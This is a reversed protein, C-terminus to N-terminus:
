LLYFQLCALNLGKERITAKPENTWVFASLGVHEEVSTRHLEAGHGLFSTADFELDPFIPTVFLRVSHTDSRHQVRFDGDAM